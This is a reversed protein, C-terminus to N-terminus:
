PELKTAVYNRIAAKLNDTVLLACHKSEDLVDRQTIKQAGGISKDEAMETVMGNSAIIIGCGDTM